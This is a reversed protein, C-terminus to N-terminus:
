YVVMSSVAVAVEDAIQEFDQKHVVQVLLVRKDNRILIETSFADFPTPKGKVV